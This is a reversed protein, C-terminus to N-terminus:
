GRDGFLLGSSKLLHRIYKIMIHVRQDFECYLRTIKSNPIGATNNVCVDCEIQTKNDTFKLLPVKAGFIGEISGDVACARIVKRIDYLAQVSDFNKLRSLETSQQNNGRKDKNNRKKNDQQQDQQDANPNDFTIVIDIDSDTSWLTNASSGFNEVNAFGYTEVIYRDNRLYQQIRSIVYFLGKKGGSNASQTYNSMEVQSKAYVEGIHHELIALKEDDVYLNKLDSKLKSLSDESVVGFSKDAEENVDEKKITIQNLKEEIKTLLININEANEYASEPDIKVEENDESTSIDSIKKKIYNEIVDIKLFNISKKDIKFKQQVIFELLNLFGNAFKIPCETCVIKWFISAQKEIEKGKNTGIDLIMDVM